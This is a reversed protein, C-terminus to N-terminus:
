PTLEAAQAYDTESDLYDDLATVLRRSRDELLQLMMQCAQASNLDEPLQDRLEDIYELAGRVKERLM